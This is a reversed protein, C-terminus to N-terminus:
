NHFSRYRVNDHKQFCINNFRLLPSALGALNGDEPTASTEEKELSFNNEEKEFVQLMETAVHKPLISYLLREQIKTEKILEDNQKISTHISLFTRRLIKEILLSTILGAATSGFYVM